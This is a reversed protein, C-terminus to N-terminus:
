FIVKLSFQLIRPDAAGTIVGFSPTGVTNGPSAFNVNNFSNFFEARFQTSVREVIPISKILAFDVNFYRPGRLINKGSDGFTGVANPVFPATNFWEQIEEGHPRSGLKAAALSTGIFDARDSGVGSFSNDVGSYISFPFGNRWNGIGSVKWGNIARGAAGSVHLHPLEWLGSIKFNSPVDDSSLGYDFSRVRFPDTEGYDDIAKSFTYSGLLQFGKSFRREVSLQLSNYNSNHDSTYLGISQFNQYIRRAQTNDETSMGPIYVAPNEQRNTQTPSNLFTGKTGRYAATLLWSSGVQRELTLNWTTVEPVHFDPSFYWRVSLPVSFSVAPGPLLPGFQAPFPNALGQSGFPDVFGIVGVLDYSPAFPATDAYANFMDTEPPTFYEGIAGRLSTKSDQTLKYAFGLRPAFNDLNNYSGASPCGADPTHGGGGGYILGLPANPYRVSQEGPRFCVVRGAVEQFPFYPDWRLGMQLTLRRAARWNDQVYLSYIGGSQHKFEGGGQSFESADGLLFDALNDGSLDNYFGFSGAMTYTNAIQNALRLFQGGFKLEHPGHMSIVNERITWDDRLHHSTHATAIDFYGAVYVSVEPRGLSSPTPAINVGAAPLSTPSGSLGGGAQRTYGFWTNFLLSPSVVYSDNIATQQILVRTGNGARLINTTPIFPPKNYRTWFYHGTLHHKGLVLDIKPMFQDDSEVDFRGVFTVQNGPGNPLPLLNTLYAAPASISPVQNGPLPQGTKPDVLQEPLASLDGNREAATPVFDVDGAPASRITTFQATGFYFLKDKIIPGGVGGGFQNRKLNDQTPAFFNRANLAGNRLFEFADGHIANTGSKTVVNVVASAANGYEASLNNASLNFEQVADPNPFPLNSNTYTDNFDGGDLEYKAGDPGSGSVAAYQQGPYVAGQCGILCYNNTVDLTGAQLFVLQQAERGNLPLDVIARQNVLQQVQASDTTVLRANGTVTITKGMKALQLPVKVTATQDVTLVIGSQVYTAFGSKEASLRYHGVPMAPFLFRGDSGTSSTRRLGTDENQLELEAGPVAAGTPDVVTGGLSATTYQAVAPIACFMLVILLSPLSVRLGSSFASWILTVFWERCTKM